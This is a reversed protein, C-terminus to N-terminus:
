GSLTVTPGGCGSRGTRPVAGTVPHGGGGACAQVGVRGCGGRVRPYPAGRGRAQEHRACGRSRAVVADERAALVASTAARGKGRMIRGFPVNQTDDGAHNSRIGLAGYEAAVFERLVAVSAQESQTIAVTGAGPALSCVERRYRIGVQGTCQCQSSRIVSVSTRGRLRISPSQRRPGPEGKGSRPRKTSSATLFSTRGLVVGHRGQRRGCEGGEGPM